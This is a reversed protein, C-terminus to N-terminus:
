RRASASCSFDIASISDHNAKRDEGGDRSTQVGPEHRMQGSALRPNLQSTHYQPCGPRITTDTRFNAAVAAPQKTLDVLLQKKAVSPKGTVIVIGKQRQRPTRLKWPAAQAVQGGQVQGIASSIVEYLVMGLIVALITLGFAAWTEGSGDIEAM